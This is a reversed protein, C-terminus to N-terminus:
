KDPFIRRVNDSTAESPKPYKPKQPKDIKQHHWGTVHLYAKGDVHYLSLLEQSVLEQVWVGIQEPDMIDAPFVSAKLYRNTYPINGLDDAHNWIGIFLLRASHSCDTVQPSLWFEPKISRIRAMNKGM